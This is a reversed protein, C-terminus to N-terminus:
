QLLEFRRLHCDPPYFNVEVDGLPSNKIETCDVKTNKSIQGFDYISFLEGFPCSLEVTGKPNLILEPTSLDYTSDPICVPESSGLNGLSGAAVIKNLSSDEVPQASYFFIMAPISLFFMMGFMFALYKLMQFYLVTGVGYNSLDSHRRLRSTCTHSGLKTKWVSM